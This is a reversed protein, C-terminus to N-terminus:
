RQKLAEALYHEGTQLGCSHATTNRFTLPVTQGCPLANYDPPLNPGCQQVDFHLHPGATQGTNGSLGLLDGQAVTDGADVHAGDRTLHLYRGITDDSHRIFVFNEELDVGNGDTFSARVAVAVGARAAHIPSGIPMAFDIAYLGVGGNARIYHGTTNTVLYSDGIPYPLIYPSSDQAAFASCDIPPDQEQTAGSTSAVLLLAGVVDLTKTTRM